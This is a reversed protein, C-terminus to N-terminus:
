SGDVAARVSAALARSAGVLAAEAGNEGSSDPAIRTSLRVFAYRSRGRLADSARLVLELPTRAPWRGEPQFWYLVVEEEASTRAAMLKGVLVEGDDLAVERDSASAIDWGQAPYCVKPDHAAGGGTGAYFGVYVWIAHGREDAYLRLSYADPSIPALEAASFTAERALELSGLRQPLRALDFDRTRQAREALLPVAAIPPSLALLM